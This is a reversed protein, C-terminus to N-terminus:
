GPPGVAMGVAAGVSTAAGGISGLFRGPDTVVIVPKGNTKIINDYFSTITL